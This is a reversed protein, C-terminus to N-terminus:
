AACRYSQSWYDIAEIYQKNALLFVGSVRIDFTPVNDNGVEVQM